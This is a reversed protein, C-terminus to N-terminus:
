QGRSSSSAWQEPWTTWFIAGDGTKGRDPHRPEGLFPQVYTATRSSGYHQQPSLLDFQHGLNGPLFLSRVSM